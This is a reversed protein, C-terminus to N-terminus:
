EEINKFNYKINKRKCYSNIYEDQYDTYHILNDNETLFYILTNYYFNNLIKGDNINKSSIQIYQQYNNLIEKGKRNHIPNKFEKIKNKKTYITYVSISNNSRKQLNIKTPVQENVYIKDYLYFDHKENNLLLNEIDFEPNLIKKNTIHKQPLLILKTKVIIKSNYNLKNSYKLILTIIKNINFNYDEKFNIKKNINKNLIPKTEIILIM